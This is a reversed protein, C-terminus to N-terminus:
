TGRWVSLAYQHWPNLDPLLDHGGTLHDDASNDLIYVQGFLV